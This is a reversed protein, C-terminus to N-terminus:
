VAKMRLSARSLTDQTHEIEFEDQDLRTELVFGMYKVKDKSITQPFTVSVRMIIDGSIDNSYGAITFIYRTKDLLELFLLSRGPLTYELLWYASSAIVIYDTGASIDRTIKFHGERLLTWFTKARGRNMALWGKFEELARHSGLLIDDADLWDRPVNNLFKKYRKGVGSDQEVVRWEVGRSRPKTFDHNYPNIPKGNYTDYVPQAWPEYPKVADFELDARLLESTIADVEAESGVLSCLKTPIVYGTIYHNAVESQTGVSDDSIQSLQVAECLDPSQWIVITDDIKLGLDRTDCYIVAEGPELPYKIPTKLWWLPLCFDRWGAGYLLCDMLGARHDTVRYGIKHRPKPRMIIRQETGDRAELVDTMFELTETVEDSWDPPFAFIIIRTGTIVLKYTYDGTFSFNYDAKIEGPGDMSVAIYYYISRLPLILAPLDPGSAVIGYNGQATIQTLSRDEFFANFIEIDYQTAQTLNNLHLAAPLFHIRNYFDTSYFNAAGAGRVAGTLWAGDVRQYAAM